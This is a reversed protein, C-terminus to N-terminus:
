AQSQERPLTFTFTSGKGPESQVRITGGHAEVIARALYLGLGTGQTSRSLTSEVRYFREFIRDQEDPALGVGEDSVSVSVTQDDYMGHVTINGGRPSYKIANSLLNDLVQRLRMEDGHITPFRSPFDVLLTHSTSQTQFREVSREALRRM